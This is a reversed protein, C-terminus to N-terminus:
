VKGLVAKYAGSTFSAWANLHGHKKYYECMYKVCAAPNNLVYEVSSFDKGVGIHFYDNIQVIGYDTSWVQGMENKNRHIARIDFGSEVKVCATLVQKQNWSLGMLDCTARVNHHASEIFSWDLLIDPDLVKPQTPMDSMTTPEIQREFILILIDRINDWIDKLSM